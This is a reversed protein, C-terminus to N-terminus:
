KRVEEKRKKEKSFIQWKENVLFDHTKRTEANQGIKFLNCRM